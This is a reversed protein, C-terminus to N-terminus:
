FAMTESGIDHSAFSQPITPENHEAISCVLDVKLEEARKLLEEERRRLEELQIKMSEKWAEIDHTLDKYRRSITSFGQLTLVLQQTAEELRQLHNSAVTIHAIVLTGPPFKHEFEISTEGNVSVWTFRDVEKCYLTLTQRGWIPKPGITALYRM